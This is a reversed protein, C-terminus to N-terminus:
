GLVLRVALEASEFRPLGAVWAGYEASEQPANPPAAFWRGDFDRVVDWLNGDQDVRFMDDQGKTVRPDNLVSVATM